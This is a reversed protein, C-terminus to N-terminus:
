PVGALAATLVAALINEWRRWSDAGEVEEREGDCSLKRLINLQNSLNPGFGPFVTSVALFGDNRNSIQYPKKETM